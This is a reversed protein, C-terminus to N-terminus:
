KSSLMSQVKEVVKEMDWDSKILYGASNLEAAAAVNEMKGSNTLLLVKATKGWADERLKKLATIGDMVPMSVDMLIMDPHEKFAIDLGQQGDGAVFVAYKRNELEDKLGLGNGEVSTKTVNGARFFKTFMNAKADAPIGIGTDAVSIRLEAPLVELQAHVMGHEHSYKVANSLLNELVEKLRGEDLVVNPVPAQPPVYRISIDKKDAAHQMEHVANGLITGVDLSRPIDGPRKQELHAVTLMNRVLGLLRENSKEVEDIYELAKEPATHVYDNKKISELYWKSIGLPTRLEHSAIGVFESKAKDIAEMPRFVKREMLQVFFFFLSAVLLCLAILLETLLRDVGISVLSNRVSSVPIVFSIRWNRGPFIHVPEFASVRAVGDFVYQRTGSVGNKIDRITQAPDAGGSVYQQFQPSAINLGILEPKYHYLVTGDDDYLSIYGGTLLPSQQLYSQQLDNLYVAGGLTGAFNGKADWVPVHIAVLYSPSGSPKIARSMVPKHEPDNFITDIYTGLTDAKVGILKANVSCHFYGDADVRGLNGVQTSPGAVLDQLKQDCAVTSGSAVEPLQAILYLKAETQAIELQLTQAVQQAAYGEQTSYQVILNNTLHDRVYSSLIFGSVIILLALVATIGIFSRKNNM